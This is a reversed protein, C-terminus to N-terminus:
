VTRIQGQTSKCLLFRVTSTFIVQDTSLLCVRLCPNVVRCLVTGPYIHSRARSIRASPSSYGDRFVRLSGQHRGQNIFRRIIAMPFFLCFLVGACAWPLIILVLEM